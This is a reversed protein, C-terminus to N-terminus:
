RGCTALTVDRFPAHRHVAEVAPRSSVTWDSDTIDRLQPARRHRVLGIGLSQPLQVPQLVEAVLLELLHDGLATVHVLRRVPRQNRLVRGTVLGVQDAVALDGHPLALLLDGSEAGAVHDTLHRDDGV